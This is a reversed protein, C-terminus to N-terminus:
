PNEGSHMEHVIVVHLSQMYCNTASLSVMRVIMSTESISLPESLRAVYGLFPCAPSYSLRDLSACMHYFVHNRSPYPPRLSALLVFLRNATSGTLVSLKPCFNLNCSLTQHEENCIRNNGERPLPWWWRWRWSRGWGAMKSVRRSCSKWKLRQTYTHIFPYSVTFECRTDMKLTM